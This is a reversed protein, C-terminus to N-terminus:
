LDQLEAQIIPNYEPCFAGQYRVRFIKVWFAPLAIRFRAVCLIQQVVQPPKRRIEYLAVVAVQGEGRLDAVDICIM